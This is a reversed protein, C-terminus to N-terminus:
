RRISNIRKLKGEKRGEKRGEMSLCKSSCILAQKM